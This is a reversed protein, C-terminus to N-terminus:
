RQLWTRSLLPPGDRHQSSLLVHQRTRGDENELAALLFTSVAHFKVTPAVYNMTIEGCDRVSGVAIIRKGEITVLLSHCADQTWVAINEPTENGLWRALIAPDDGHDAMCLEAISARLVACAASADDPTAHRILM